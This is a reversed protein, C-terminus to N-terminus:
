KKSNKRNHLGALMNRGDPLQTRAMAEGLEYAEQGTSEILNM